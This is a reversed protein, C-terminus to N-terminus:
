SVAQFAAQLELILTHTQEKDLRVPGQTDVFVYGAASGGVVPKTDKGTPSQADVEFTHEQPRHWQRNPDQEEQFDDREKLHKERADSM